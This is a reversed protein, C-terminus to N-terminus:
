ARCIIEANLIGFYGDPDAAWAQWARSIQAL